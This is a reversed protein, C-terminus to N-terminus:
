AVLATTSFRACGTKRVNQAGLRTTGCRACWAWSWGCAMWGHVETILARQDAREITTGQDGVLRGRKAKNSPGDEYCTAERPLEIRLKSHESMVVHERQLGAVGSADQRRHHDRRQGPPHPAHPHDGWCRTMQRSHHRRSSAQRTFIPPWQLRFLCCGWATESM